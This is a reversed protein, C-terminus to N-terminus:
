CKVLESVPSLAKLVGNRRDLAWCTGLLIYGRRREKVVLWTAQLVLCMYLKFWLQTLRNHLWSVVTLELEPRWAAAAPWVLRLLFVACAEPLAAEPNQWIWRYCRLLCVALLGDELSGAPPRPDTETAWTVYMVLLLPSVLTHFRLAAQRLWRLRGGQCAPRYACNRVLSWCYVRQLEIAVDWPPLVGGLWLLPLACITLRCVVDCTLLWDPAPSLRGLKIVLLPVTLLLVHLPRNFAALDWEDLAQLTAPEPPRAVTLSYLAACVSFWGLVPFVAVMASGRSVINDFNAPALAFTAAAAVLGAAVPHLVVSVVRRKGPVMFGWTTWRCLGHFEVEDDQALMSTKAEEQATAAHRAALAGVTQLVM